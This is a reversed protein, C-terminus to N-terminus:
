LGIKFGNSTLYMLMSNPINDNEDTSLVLSVKTFNDKVEAVISTTVIIKGPFRNFFTVQKFTTYTLEYVFFYTTTTESMFERMYYESLKMEKFRDVILKKIDIKKNLSLKIERM